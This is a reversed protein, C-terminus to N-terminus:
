VNFRGVLLIIFYSLLHLPFGFKYHLLLITSHHDFWYDQIYVAYIYTFILSCECSRHIEARLHIESTEKDMASTREWLKAM